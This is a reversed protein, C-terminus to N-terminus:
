SPAVSKLEQQIEDILERIHQPPRAYFALNNRPDVFRPEGKNDDENEQAHLRSLIEDVTWGPFDSSLITAKFRANRASRNAEYRAQLKSQLLYYLNALERM